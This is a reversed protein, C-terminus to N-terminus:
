QIPGDTTARQSSAEQLGQGGSWGAERHGHGPAGPPLSIRVLGVVGDVDVNGVHGLKRWVVGAGYFTSSLTAQQWRFWQHTGQCWCERRWQMVCGRSTMLPMVHCWLNNPVCDTTMSLTSRNCWRRAVSVLCPWSRSLFCTPEWVPEPDPVLPKRNWQDLTVLSHPVAM